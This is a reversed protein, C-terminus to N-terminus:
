PEDEQLLLTYILANETPFRYYNTRLGVRSLGCKEYLRQAPLNSERVELTVCDCNREKATAMLRRLLTEAIHKKRYPEAVAINNIYFDGCIDEGEAYGCVAGDAEAVLFFVNEKQLECAIMTSSWPDSFCAKEMASIADVDAPRANRIVFEM